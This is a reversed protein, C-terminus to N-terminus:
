QFKVFREAIARNIPFWFTFKALLRIRYSEAEAALNFEGHRNQDQLVIHASTNKLRIAHHFSCGSPALSFCCAGFFEGRHIILVSAQFIFKANFCTHSGCTITVNEWWLPTWLVCMLLGLVVDCLCVIKDLQLYANNCTNIGLVLRDGDHLVSGNLIRSFANSRQMTSKSRKSYSRVNKEWKRM